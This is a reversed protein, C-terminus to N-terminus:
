QTWASRPIKYKAQGTGGVAEGPLTLILYDAAAVPVEFVLLDQVENGPHIATGPRLRGVVQASVGWTTLRYHNGLNDSLAATDDGFGRLEPNWDRFDVKRTRSGNVIAIRIQLQKDKSSAPRGLDTLRVKEVSVSAIRVGVDGFRATDTWAIAGVDPAGNAAQPAAHAAVPGAEKAAKDADHAVKGLGIFGLGGLGCCLAPVVIGVLALAALVGCTVGVGWGFPGAGSRRPPADDEYEDDSRRRRSM